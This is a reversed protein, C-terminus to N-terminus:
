LGCEAATDTFITGILFPIKIKVGYLTDQKLATSEDRILARHSATEM